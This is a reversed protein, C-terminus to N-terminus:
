TQKCIKYYFTVAFFIFLFKWFNVFLERENTTFSNGGSVLPHGKTEFRPNSLCNQGRELTVKM